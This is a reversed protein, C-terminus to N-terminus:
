RHVSSQVPIPQAVDSVDQAAYRLRRAFSERRREIESLARNRRADAGTILREIREVDPLRESLAQAMLWDADLGRSHLISEVEAVAVNDGTVYGRALQSPTLVPAGNTHGVDKIKNLFNVLAGRAAKMLLSAKLRRLRQSEWMLDVVDKIWMAEIVDTPKVAASVRSLLEDYDAEAEGLVLPRKAFLTGLDKPHVHIDAAASQEKTAKRESRDRWPDATVEFPNWTQSM